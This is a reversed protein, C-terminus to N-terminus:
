TLKSYGKFSLGIVQLTGGSGGMITLLPLPEQKILKILSIYYFIYNLCNLSRTLHSPYLVCVQSVQLYILASAGERTFSNWLSQGKHGARALYVYYLPLHSGGLIFIYFIIAPIYRFRITPVVTPEIILSPIYTLVFVVVYYCSTSHNGLLNVGIINQSKSYPSFQRYYPSLDKLYVVTSRLFGRKYM